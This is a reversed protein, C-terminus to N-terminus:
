RNFAKEVENIISDCVLGKISKKEKLNLRVLTSSIQSYEQKCNIYVNEIEPYLTKNYDLMKQEYEFDKENRIGRVNSTVKNQKLFDVLLGDFAVVQVRENNCFVNKAFNLRTLKDFTYQKNENDGVAVIVKKFTKLASEVIQIHGITIPDFSGAFVCVDSNVKRLFTFYAIGYKKVKEVFLGKNITNYPSNHEYVVLGNENLLQRSVITQIANNGDDLRYPPDLFIIDFKKNTTKLYENCDINIARNTAKVSELNKNCLKCSNISLDTFIVEKAGRSLAEIGIAGSGCFGDYFVKNALEFQLSSFLGEKARDSTPRIANGEFEALKKGKYKGAVVRM